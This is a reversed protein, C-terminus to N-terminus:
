PKIFCITRGTIKVDRSQTMLNLIMFDDEIDPHLLKYFSLIKKASFGNCLLADINVVGKEICMQGCDAYFKIQDYLMHLVESKVNEIMSKLQIKKRRDEEGVKRSNELRKTLSSICGKHIRAENDFQTSLMDVDAGYACECMRLESQFAREDVARSKAREEEHELKKRFILCEEEAVQNKRTLESIERKLSSITSLMDSRENQARKLARSRFVTLFPNSNEKISVDYPVEQESRGETTVADTDAKEEEIGTENPGKQGHAESQTGIKEDGEDEEWKSEEEQGAEGVQHVGFVKEREGDEEQNWEEDQKELKGDEEEEEFEERQLVPADKALYDTTSRSEDDSGSCEFPASSVNKKEKMSKKKKERKKKKKEQKLNRREKECEEEEILEEQLRMRTMGAQEEVQRRQEELVHLVDKKQVLGTNLSDPHEFRRTASSITMEDISLGKENQSETANKLKELFDSHDVKRRESFHLLKLQILFPDEELSVVQLQTDAGTVNLADCMEDTFYVECNSESFIKAGVFLSEIGAMWANFYPERDLIYAVYNPNFCNAVGLKTREFIYPESESGLSKIASSILETYYSRIKIPIESEQCRLFHVALVIQREIFRRGTVRENDSFLTRMTSEITFKEDREEFFLKALCDEKWCGFFLLRYRTMHNSRAALFLEVSWFFSVIKQLEGEGESSDLFTLVQEEPSYFVDRSGSTGHGFMLAEMFNAVFCPAVRDCIFNQMKKISLHFMPFENPYFLTAEDTTVKITSCHSDKHAFKVDQQRDYNDIHIAMYTQCADRQVPKMCAHPTLSADKYLYLIKSQSHLMVKSTHIGLAPRFPRLSEPSCNFLSTKDHHYHRAFVFLEYAIRRQLTVYVDPDMPVVEDSLFCSNAKSEQLEVTYKEGDWEKRLTGVRYPSTNVVLVISGVPIRSM